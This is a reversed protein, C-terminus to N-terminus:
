RAILQEIPAYDDTLLTGSGVSLSDVELINAIKDRAVSTDTAVLLMNQRVNGGYLGEPYVEVNQFVERYTAMLAELYPDGSPRAIINAILTGERTLSRQQLSLAERTTLQYPPTLSSYADMFIIDYREDSRNFFVRGDEHYVTLNAPPNFEFYQKALKTLKPDIEVVDIRADPYTKAAVQPYTYAGGGVVLINQPTLADSIVKFRQTYTSVLMGPYGVYQSSQAGFVDTVLTRLPVEDDSDTILYRSHASDVDAVINASLNITPAALAALGVLLVVVRQLLWGRHTVAFSLAVLAVVLLVGLLRNGFLAILWYGALFTGAISGVTGAAYLRGISQGASRMNKISLKAVYPSVVGLLLAAPAFLLLAALVAALRVDPAISAIIGLLLEQVLLSGGILFAALVIVKMLTHDSPDRDALRGGYWYGASLAALIVGIMATWVYLSSGFYPAIVRAGVLELIMVIAGSSAAILEYRYRVFFQKVM